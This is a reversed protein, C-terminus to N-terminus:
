INELLESKKQTFEEDSIIGQENLEALRELKSIDDSQDEKQDVEPESINNIGKRIHNIASRFEENTVEYRHLGLEIRYIGTSSYFTFGNTFTDVAGIEDFHRRVVKNGQTIMYISDQLIALENVTEEYGQKKIESTSKERNVFGLGYNWGETKMIAKGTDRDLIKLKADADKIPGVIVYECNDLTKPYVYRLANKQTSTRQSIWFHIKKDNSSIVLRNREKRNSVKLDVINISQYPFELVKDESEQPLISIIRQNTFIHYSNNGDSPTVPDYKSNIGVGKKSDPDTFIYFINEEENLQEIIPNNPLGNGTSTVLTTTVTNDKSNRIKHEVEKQVEQTSNSSNINHTLYKNLSKIDAADHANSIPVELSSDPTDLIIKHKFRGTSYDVDEIKNLPVSLTQNGSTNGAIGLWRQDTIVHLINASPSCSINNFEGGKIDPSKNRTKYIFHPQEGAKLYDIAPNEYLYRSALGAKTSTLIKRNVSEHIADEILKDIDKKNTDTALNSDETNDKFEVM